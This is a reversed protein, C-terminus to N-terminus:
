LEEEKWFRQIWDQFLAPEEDCDALPTGDQTVVAADPFQSYDVDGGVYRTLAYLNAENTDYGAWDLFERATMPTEDWVVTVEATDEDSVIRIYATAVVPGPAETPGAHLSIHYDKVPYAREIKDVAYSGWAPIEEKQALDALTEIVDAFVDDYLASKQVIVTKEM